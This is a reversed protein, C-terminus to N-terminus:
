DGETQELYLSGCDLDSERFEDLGDFKFDGWDSARDLDSESWLSKVDGSPFPTESLGPLSSSDDSSVKGDSLFTGSFFACCASILTKM